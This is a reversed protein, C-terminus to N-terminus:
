EDDISAIEQLRLAVYMLPDTIKETSSALEEKIKLIAADLDPECLALQGSPPTSAEAEAQAYGMLSRVSQDVKLLKPLQSLKQPALTSSAISSDIM